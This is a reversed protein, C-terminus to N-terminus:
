GDDQEVSDLQLVLANFPCPAICAGCGCCLGADVNAYKKGYGEPLATTLSLAGFPCIAICRGCGTCRDKLCIIM